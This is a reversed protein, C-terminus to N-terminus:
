NGDCLEELFFESIRNHNRNPFYYIRVKEM